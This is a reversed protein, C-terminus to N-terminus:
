NEWTERPMKRAEEEDKAKAELHQMVSLLGEALIRDRANTAADRVSQVMFILPGEIRKTRLVQGNKIEAPVDVGIKKAWPFPSKEAAAWEREAKAAEEANLIGFLRLFDSM